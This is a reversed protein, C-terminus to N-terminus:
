GAGSQRRQLETALREVDPNGPSIRRLEVLAREAGALDALDLGLVVAENFRSQWHDPSAAQAQRFLELARDFQRRARYTIGLDTLADPDGPSLELYREYLEAAREWRQIDFNLDALRLLARSDDPDRELTERLANIEAMAAEGPAGPASADDPGQPSGRGAPAAAPAPAGAAVRAPQLDTMAEHALYGGLFGGLLGILLFLFHDRNV